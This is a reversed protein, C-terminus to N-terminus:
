RRVEAHRLSEADSSPACGYTEDIDDLVATATDSQDDKAAIPAIHDDDDDSKDARHSHHGNVSESVEPYVEEVVPDNDRRRHGKARREHLRQSWAAPWWRYPWWNARGVIVAMAPVTVTRVLFTDLLIGVGIVFGAQLM